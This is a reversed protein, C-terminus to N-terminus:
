NGAAKLVMNQHEPDISNTNHTRSNLFHLDFHGPFQNDYITQVDHPMGAMSGAISKGGVQVLVARELWSWSGGYIGKLIATDAATLPEMDAHNSGGLRRVNFSKGTILDKIVATRGTDLVWYVYQWDLLEGFGDKQSAFPEPIVVPQSSNQPIFLPQNINLLESHLHNTEKIAAITTKFRNAISWLNDGPQVKYLTVNAPIDGWRGGYPIDIPEENEPPNPVPTESNGQPVFLVQGVWLAPSTLNNVLKLLDINTNYRQALLYLTDGAQVTYRQQPLLPIRLNQGPYIMTGKLESASMLDNVSVGFRQAILYLTDGAKVTYNAYQPIERVFGTSAPIRLVQGPYLYTNTLGNAKMIAEVTTEFRWGILWLYDGSQVRYYNYDAEAAQLPGAMTVMMLFTVMLPVLAIKYLGKIKDM